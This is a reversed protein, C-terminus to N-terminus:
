LEEDPTMTDLLNNALHYIDKYTEFTWRNALNTAGNSSSSYPERHMIDDAAHEAAHRLYFRLGDLNCDEDELLKHAESVFELRLNAKYIQESAWEFSENFDATLSEMGGKVLGENRRIQREVNRRLRTRMESEQPTTTNTTTM